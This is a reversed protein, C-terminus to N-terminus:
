NTSHQKVIKRPGDDMAGYIVPPRESPICIKLQDEFQHKLSQFASLRIGEVHLLKIEFSLRGQESIRYRFLATVEFTTEQEAGEIIPVRIKIRSPVKANGASADTKEEYKLDVDGNATNIASVFNVNRLGQLRTAITLVDAAAPDCIDDLHEEIFEAFQQQTMPRENIRLWDEWRQTTALPYILQHDAWGSDDWDHWDFICRLEMRRGSCFVMAKESTNFKAIYHIFSSLTEAVVVGKHTAPGHPDYVEDSVLRYGDPVITANAAKQLRIADLLQQIM